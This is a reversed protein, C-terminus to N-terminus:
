NCPNYKPTTVHDTRTRKGLQRENLQAVNNEVAITVTDLSGQKYGNIINRGDAIEYCYWDSGDAGPPPETRLISVIEYV